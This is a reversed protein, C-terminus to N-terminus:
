ITYLLPTLKGTANTLNKEIALLKPVDSLPVCELIKSIAM